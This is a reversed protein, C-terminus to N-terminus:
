EFPDEHPAGRVGIDYHDLFEEDENGLEIEFEWSEGADVEAEGFSCLRHDNENGAEDYIIVCVEVADKDEDTNNEVTGVILGNFRDEDPDTPLFEHEVIVLEGDAVEGDGNDGGDDTGNADDDGTGADDDDSGLCGALAGAGAATLGGLVRRRSATPENGPSRETSTADSETPVIRRRRNTNHRIM